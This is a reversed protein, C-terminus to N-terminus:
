WRWTERPSLWPVRAQAASLAAAGSPFVTSGHRALSQWRSAGDSDFRFEEFGFSGDERVFVDLCHTGHEDEFSALVKHRM